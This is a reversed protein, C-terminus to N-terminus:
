GQLVDSQQPLRLHKAYFLAVEIATPSLLPFGQKDIATSTWTLLFEVYNSCWVSVLTEFQKPSLRRLLERTAPMEEYDSHAEPFAESAIITSWQGFGYRCVGNLLAVTHAKMWWDPMKAMTVVICQLETPLVGCILCLRLADMM